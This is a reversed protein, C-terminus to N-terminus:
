WWVPSPPGRVKPLAGRRQSVEDSRGCQLNLVSGEMMSLISEFCIMSQSVDTESMESQNLCAIESLTRMAQDAREALRTKHRLKEHCYWPGRWLILQLGATQQLPELRVDASEKFSLM